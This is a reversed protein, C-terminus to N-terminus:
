AYDLILESVPPLLFDPLKDSLFECPEHAKLKKKEYSKELNKRMARLFSDYSDYGLSRVQDNMQQVYKNQSEQLAYINKDCFNFLKNKWYSPVPICRTGVKIFGYKNIDEIHALFFEKGIGPSFFMKPRELGNDFFKSLALNGNCEKDMYKLIYRVGGRLIPGVDVIGAYWSKEIVKRFSLWDLGFFLAHFHPRLRDSGYESVAVVKFDKRCFQPMESDPIKNVYHRLRDLYKSFDDNRITPLFSGKSWPLYYDDYTFTCFANRGKLMEATCRYEWLTRRDIRCGECHHCPVPYLKGTGFQKINKFYQINNCM